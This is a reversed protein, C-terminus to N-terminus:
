AAAGSGAHADRWATRDPTRSGPESRRRRGLRSLNFRVHGACADLIIKEDSVGPTRHALRYLARDIFRHGISYKFSPSLAQRHGPIFAVHASYSQLIEIDNSSDRNPRRSKMEASTAISVRRSRM